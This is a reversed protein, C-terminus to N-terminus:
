YRRMKSYCMLNGMVVVMVGVMDDVMGGTPLALVLLELSLAPAVLLLLGLL